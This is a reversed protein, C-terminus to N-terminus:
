HIRGNTALQKSDLVDREYDEPTPPTDMLEDVIDQVKQITQFFGDLEDESISASVKHQLYKVMMRSLDRKEKGAETLKIIVKRKDYMDGERRIWGNEEMTKLM